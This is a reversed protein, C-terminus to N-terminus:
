GRPDTDVGGKLGEADGRDLAREAQSDLRTHPARDIGGDENVVLPGADGSGGDIRVAEHAGESGDMRGSYDGRKEGIGGADEPGVPEDSAGQLMPVGQDLIDDRTTAGGETHELEENQSPSAVVPNDEHIGGEEQADQVNALGAEDTSPQGAGAGPAEQDQGKQEEDPQKDNEAPPTQPEDTM